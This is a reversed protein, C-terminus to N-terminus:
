PRQAQKQEKDFTFRQKLEQIITPDSNQDTFFATALATRSLLAVPYKSRKLQTRVQGSKADLDPKLPYAAVVLLIPGAARIATLMQEVQKRKDATTHSTLYYNEPILSRIADATEGARLTDNNGDFMCKVQIFVLLVEDTDLRVRTILDPGMDNGPICWGAGGSEIWKQVETPGNAHFPVGYSPNLPQESIHDFPGYTGDSRKAVIEGTCGDWEQRLEHWEFIDKLATPQQLLRTLALLVVIEFASGKEFFANTRLYGDVTKGQSALWRVLCVLALPEDIKAVMELREEGNATKEPMFRGLGYQVAQNRTQSACSVHRGELVFTHIVRAFDDLLDRDSKIKDWMFGTIQPPKVPSEANLLSLDGDIPTFGSILKVYANLLKHPAAPGDEHWEGNILDQLFQATFRHRGRLWDYMRNRLSVGSRLSLYSSPLYKKVYDQQVREDTFDGTSYQEDWELSAKAAGSALVLRFHELSFGTGSVIVTTPEHTVLYQIIPRLVPRKEKGTVDVFCDMYEEGAVQAEDLVYFFGGTFDPGITTSPNCQDLQDLVDTSVGALHAKILDLFPDSGCFHFPLIQFLLWDYKISDPLKGNHCERAVDLFARFIIWRAVLLRSMRMNVITENSKAATKTKSSDKFIDSEWGPSMAMRSITAQLDQSGIGDGGKLAVFYFGWNRCLGEVLLRTKGSGSTNCVIQYTGDKFLQLGYKSRWEQLNHLLLSPTNKVMPINVTKYFLKIEDSTTDPPSWTPLRPQKSFLTQIKPRLDDVFRDITHKVFDLSPSDQGPPTINLTPLDRPHNEPTKHEKMARKRQEPDDIEASAPRKRHPPPLQVAIHITDKPPTSPYVSSLERTARPLLMPAQSMKERVTDKLQINDRVDIQYLNLKDADIGACDDPKKAKIREKLEGVTRNPAINVPFPYTDEQNHIICYITYENATAMSHFSVAKHVYM